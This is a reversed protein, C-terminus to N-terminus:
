LPQGRRISGLINFFLSFFIVCTRYVVCVFNFFYCVVMNNLGEQVPFDCVCVCVCVCVCM